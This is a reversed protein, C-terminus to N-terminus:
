VRVYDLNFNSNADIAVGTVASAEEWHRKKVANHSMKTVLPMRARFAEIRAKLEVAARHAAERKNKVQAAPHVITVLM